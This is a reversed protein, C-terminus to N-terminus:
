SGSERKSRINLDTNKQLELIFNVLNWRDKAGIQGFAPMGTADNGKGIIWFKDGPGYIASHEHDLFNAPSPDMAKAAPGDGRGDEGHCVACHQQYLKRGSTLSEKDPIIPTREMISYEEPIEDKIALMAQMHKTSEGEQHHEETGHAFCSMKFTMLNGVILVLGIALFWGTKM